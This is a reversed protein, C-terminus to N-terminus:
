KGDDPMVVINGISRLDESGIDSRIIDSFQKRGNTRMWPRNPREATLVVEKTDVTYVAQDGGARQINGKSDRRLLVVDRKCVIRKLEQSDSIAIRSPASNEGMDMEFPDADLAEEESLEKKVPKKEGNEEVISENIPAAGTFVYMDRCYIETNGDNIMVKGHFETYDALLDSMANASKLTRSTVKGDKNNFYTALVSGDCLIKVLQAGGAQIMGPSPKAGPPLDRFFLTLIDTKLENDESLMVVDKTAIIKTVTKDKGEMGAAVPAGSPASDGSKKEVKKDKLFIDLRNCDLCAKGDRIKVDNYFILKNSRYNLEAQRSNVTSVSVIKKAPDEPTSKESRSIIKVNGNAFLLDLKHSSTKEDQKLHARLSDTYLSSTQDVAIVNGHFNAVNAKGDYNARDSYITRTRAIMGKEDRVISKIRCDRMVFMRDAHRLLEIRHGTLQTDSGRSLTPKQDDGTLIILERKVDYELHESRSTQLETAEKAPDEPRQVFLVNGDALVRRIGSLAAKEDDPLKTSGSIKKESSKEQEKDEWYVSLRECTLTNRGDVVKVNGILMLESNKRDIRLSDSSATVIRHKVPFPTGSLIKRPDTESSRLTIRVDSNVVLVQDKFNAKFGVGDLDFMPNRLYVQADGFAEQNNQDIFCKDTFIVSDSVKYRNKWFNVVEKLPSGLPYLKTKWGDPIKDVDIKELLLDLFASNSRMYKGDREGGNAYVLLKLQEKEYFPIKIHKLALGQMDEIGEAFSNICLLGSLALLLFKIKM